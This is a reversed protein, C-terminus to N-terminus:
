PDKEGASSTSAASKGAIRNAITDPLLSSAVTFGDDLYILARTRRGKTFDKLCGSKRLVAMDRKAPASDPDAVALIRGASVFNGFGVNILCHNM